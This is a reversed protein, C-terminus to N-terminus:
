QDQRMSWLNQSLDSELPLSSTTRRLTAPSSVAAAVAWRQVESAGMPAMAETAGALAVTEWGGELALRAKCM